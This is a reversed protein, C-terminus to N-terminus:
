LKSVAIHAVLNELTSQMVEVLPYDNGYLTSDTIRRQVAPHLLHDYTYQDCKHITKLNM